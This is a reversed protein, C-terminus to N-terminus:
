TIALLAGNPGLLPRRYRFESAYDVEVPIRAINEFMFKGVLASHYSTGCAVTTIKTIARAEEATIPMTDLHVRGRHFDARGRITDTIARPQESIEKQMFHRFPGKEASVPDWPISIKEPSVPTGDLRYIDLSDRTIKAIQRSELFIVDRTHQLIAPIDSAVYSEDEGLGVVIGGANGLRAIVLTEPESPSLFVFASAGQIHPLAKQVASLLDDGGALYGDVLNAIVETDTESQFVYGEDTMERRLTAYNEIIGNHVVAVRKNMGIHPHANFETM